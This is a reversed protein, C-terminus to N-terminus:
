GPGRLDYRRRRLALWAGGLVMTGIAVGVGALLAPEADGAAQANAVPPSAVPTPGTSPLVPAESPQLSTPQAVSPSPSPLISAAPALSPLHSPRATGAPRATPPPVVTTTFNAWLYERTTRGSAHIRAALERGFYRFHWPEFSYCTVGTKGKPYSMVFGYEWAHAKM